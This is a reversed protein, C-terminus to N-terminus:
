TQKDTSRMAYGRDRYFKWRERAAIKDPEEIGVLEILQRFRGFYLPVNEDLNILIDDQLLAVDGVCLHIPTVSATAADTTTNPLFSTESLQWLAQSLATKNGEAGCNITLQHGQKLYNECLTVTESIKNHLNVIFEVKTM